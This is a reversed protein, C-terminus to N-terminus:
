SPPDPVIPVVPATLALLTSTFLPVIVSVFVPATLQSDTLAFWVTLAVPAISPDASVALVPLMVAVSPLM